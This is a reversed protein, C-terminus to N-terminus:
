GRAAGDCAEQGHLIAPDAGDDGPGDLLRRDDRAPQALASARPAEGAHHPLRRLHFKIVAADGAIGHPHSEPQVFCPGGERGVQHVGRPSLVPGGGIQCQIRHALDRGHQISLYPEPLRVRDVPIQGLGVGLRAQERSRGGSARRHLASQEELGPVHARGTHRDHHRGVLAYPLEPPDRDIRLGRSRGALLQRAVQRDELLRQGPSIPELVLERQGVQGVRGVEPQDRFGAEVELRPWAHPGPQIAEQRTRGPLFGCGQDEASINSRWGNNVASPSIPRVLKVASSITRPISLMTNMAMTESRMSTSRRERSRRMPSLRARTIRRPSNNPRDQIMPIVVATRVTSPCSNEPRSRTRSPPPRKRIALDLWSSKRPESFASGDDDDEGAAWRSPGDASPDAIAGTPRPWAPPPLKPTISAWIKTRSMTNESSETIVATPIARWSDMMISAITIATTPMSNPALTILSKM